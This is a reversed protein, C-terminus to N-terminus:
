SIFRGVIITEDNEPPYRFVVGSFYSESVYGQWCAFVPDLCDKGHQFGMVDGLDYFQGKYKVFSRTELEADTLYDFESREKPTLEFGYVIGRPKNNTIIKM